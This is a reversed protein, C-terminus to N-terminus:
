QPRTATMRPWLPLIFCGQMNLSDNPANQGVNSSDDDEGTVGAHRRQSVSHALIKGNKFHKRKNLYMFVPFNKAREDKMCDYRSKKRSRERSSWLQESVNATSSLVPLQTASYAHGESRETIPLNVLQTHTDTDTETQTYTHRHRHNQPSQPPHQVSESCQLTQVRVDPLGAHPSLSAQCDPSSAPQRQHRHHIPLESNSIKSALKTSRSGWSPRNQM